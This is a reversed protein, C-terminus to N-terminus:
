NSGKRRPRALIFVGSTNAELDMEQVTNQVGTNGRKEGEVVADLESNRTARGIDWFTLDSDEGNQMGIRHCWMGSNVIWLRQVHYVWVLKDEAVSPNVTTTHGMSSILAVTANLVIQELANVVNESNPTFTGATENLSFLNSSALLNTGTISLGTTTRVITGDLQDYLWNRMSAYTTWYALYQPYDGDQLSGCSPRSFSEHEIFNNYSIISPSINGTNNVFSVVSQQTTNYLSCRAGAITTNGNADYTTRWVMSMNAVLYTTGAPANWSLLTDSQLAQGLVKQWAASPYPDCQVESLNTESFYVTPVSITTNQPSASGVELSNPALISVLAFAFFHNSQLITFLRRRILRRILQTLSVSVSATCLWQVLASLVNSSNKTWFQSSVTRGQLVFLYVHHLGATLAAGFLLGAIVGPTGGLRIRRALQPLPSHYIM